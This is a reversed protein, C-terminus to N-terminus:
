CLVNRVRFGEGSEDTYFDVCHYQLFALAWDLEMGGQSLVEEPVFALPGRGEGDGGGGAATSRGGARDSAASDPPARKAYLLKGLAHFQTM